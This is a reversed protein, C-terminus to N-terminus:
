HYIKLFGLTFVEMSFLIPLVVADASETRFIAMYAIVASQTVASGLYNSYLHWLAWSFKSIHRQLKPIATEISFKFLKEEYLQQTSIVLLLAV